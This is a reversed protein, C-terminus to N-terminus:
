ASHACGTPWTTRLREHPFRRPNSPDDVGKRRLATADFFLPGDGAAEIFAVLGQELLHAHIPVIRAERDKITGAEPMLRIAWRTQVCRLDQKRLQCIEGPRRRYLRPALRGAGPGISDPRTVRLQISQSAPLIASMEQNRSSRERLKVVKKAGNRSGLRFNAFPNISLLAGGDDTRPRAAWGFVAKAAAIYQFNVTKETRDASRLGECWALADEETFSVIDRGGPSGSL